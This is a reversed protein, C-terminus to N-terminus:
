YLFAFPIESQYPGGVAADPPGPKWRGADAHGMRLPFVARDEGEEPLIPPGGRGLGDVGGGREERGGSSAFCLALRWPGCRLGAEQGAM